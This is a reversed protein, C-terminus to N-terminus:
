SALLHSLSPAVFAFLSGLDLLASAMLLQACIEIGNVRVDACRQYVQAFGKYVAAPYADTKSM